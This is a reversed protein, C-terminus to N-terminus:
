PRATSRWDTPAPNWRRGIPDVRVEFSCRALFIIGPVGNSRSTGAVFFEVYTSPRWIGEQLDGERRRCADTALLGSLVCVEVAVVGTPPEIWRGTGGSGVAKIMFNAWVPAAVDSAYGRPLITRPEDFGVWVGAALEPTFGVFWADKYDDTTGTKGAAPGVFGERRVGSGTGADVVGRLLSAVIFATAPSVAPTRVKTRHTDTEFLVTGGADTV